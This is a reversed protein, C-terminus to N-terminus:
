WRRSPRAAQNRPRDMQPEAEIQQEAAWEGAIQGTGMGAIKILPATYFPVGEPLPAFFLAESVISSGLSAYTTPYLEHAIGWKEHVHAYTLVDSAAQSTHIMPVIPAYQLAAYTGLYRQRRYQKALASEFLANAPRTSNISLTNTFPSYEDSRMIRSPLLTYRAMYLVGITYKWFPAIRDNQMMRNWHERPEYRRVDIYVDNLGNAALYEQSLAITRDRQQEIQEPSTVPLRFARRVAQHPGRIFNEIRDLRPYHGDIVVPNSAGGALPTQSVFQESATGYFYREQACGSFFAVATLAVLLASYQLPRNM